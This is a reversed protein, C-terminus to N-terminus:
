SARSRDRKRVDRLFWERRKSKNTPSTELRPRQPSLRPAPLTNVAIFSITSINLRTQCRLRVSPSANAACAPSPPSRELM